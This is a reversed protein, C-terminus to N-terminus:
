MILLLIISGVKDNKDTETESAALAISIPTQLQM